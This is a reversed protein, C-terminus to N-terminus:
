DTFSTIENFSQPIYNIYSMMAGVNYMNCPFKLTKIMDNKVKEIFDWEPSNHVHGYFHYWDYYHNKFCPSPYHSLVLGIRNNIYIEKYDVIEIFLRQLEHNKLYKADHNGKILHKKGKLKRFYEVTEQIGLWSIDGLIYVDDEDTIKKNWEEMIFNDHEKITKFPRKDFKLANEHGIHLDAIFYNM